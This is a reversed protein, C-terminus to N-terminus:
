AAGGARWRVDGCVKRGLTWRGSEWRGEGGGWLTGRSYGKSEKQHLIFYFFLCTRKLAEVSARAAGHVSFCLGSVRGLPGRPCPSPLAERQPSFRRLDAVQQGAVPVM